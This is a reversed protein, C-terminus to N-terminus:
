KLTIAKDLKTNIEKLLDRIEILIDKEKINKESKEKKELEKRKKFELIEDIDVYYKKCLSELDNDDDIMNLINHKIRSSIAGITRKFYNALTNYKENKSARKMLEKDEEFTWLKYSNSLNDM